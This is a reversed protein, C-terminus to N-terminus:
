TPCAPLNEAHCILELCSWWARHESTALVHLWEGISLWLGSPGTTTFLQDGVHCTVKKTGVFSAEVMSNRITSWQWKLVATVHLTTTLLVGTQMDYSMCAPVQRCAWFLRSKMYELPSTPKWNLRQKAHTVFHEALITAVSFAICQSSGNGTRNGGNKHIM